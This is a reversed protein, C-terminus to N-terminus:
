FTRVGIFPILAKRLNNEQLFFLFVIQLASIFLFRSFDPQENQRVSIPMGNSPRFSLNGPNEESDACDPLLPAWQGPERSM